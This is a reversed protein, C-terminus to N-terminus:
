AAQRNQMKLAPFGESSSWKLVGPRTGNFYSGMAKVGLAYITPSTLKMSKPGKNAILRNRLDFAATRDAGEGTYVGKLFDMAEVDRGERKAIVYLAAGMSLPMLRTIRYLPEILKVGEVIEDGYEECYEILETKTVRKTITVPMVGEDYALILRATPALMHQYEQGTLADGVTRSLGHDIVRYLEEDNSEMVIFPFSMGTQILAALRHQGNALQGKVKLIADSGLRWRGSIMDSALHNVHNPRIKRQDLLSNMLFESAMEPSVKIINIEAKM